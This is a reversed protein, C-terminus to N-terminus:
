VTTTFLAFRASPAAKLPEVPGLRRTYRNTAQGVVFNRWRGKRSCAEHSAAIESLHVFLPAVFRLVSCRGALDLM